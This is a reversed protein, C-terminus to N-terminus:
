CALRHERCRFGRDGICDQADRTAQDAGILTCEPHHAVGFNDSHRRQHRRSLWNARVKRDTKAHSAPDGRGAPWGIWSQLSVFLLLLSLGLIVEPVVLPALLMFGFLGRGAFRRFRAMAFGAATGLLLALTASMLAIELSTWAASRFKDDQALAAYWRISFGGWVSVLRSGNFSYAILLAIPLYLFGFGLILVVGRALTASRSGTM